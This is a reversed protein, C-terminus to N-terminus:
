NGKGTSAQVSRTYARYLVPNAAAVKSFAITYEAGSKEIEAQILQEMQDGSSLPEGDEGSVGRENTLGADGLNADGAKFLEYIRKSVPADLRDIAKFVEWDDDANIPLHKYAAAKQISEQKVRQDREMEAAAKALAIEQEQQEFRKRLAPAVGKWIDEPDDPADRKALEAEAAEAREIAAAADQQAQELQKKLEESMYVDETENLVEHIPAMMDVFQKASTVVVRMREDEDAECCSQLSDMFADVIKWKEERAEDRQERGDLVEKLTMAKEIAADEARKFLLVHAAQNAGKDVLDVRDIKLQRLKRAM